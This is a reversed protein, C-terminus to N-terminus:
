LLTTIGLCDLVRQQYSDPQTVLDFHQGDVEVRNLQLSHLRALLLKLSGYDAEERMPALAQELHWQLYYALMCLFTHARVREERWHFVPRLELQMTKMSRFAREVQRLSHYSQQVQAAALATAPVATRLVYLGDLAAEEAIATLNRQYTFSGEAITHELHKAMKWRNIVAGVALAIAAPQRLRGREVRVRIKELQLETAQLLEERKRRRQEAVLPNRCVVLREKPYEPDYIEALGRQDFLSLQLSGQEHLRRLSPARLATIWDYGIQQLEEIRTSTIMGRDGVVVVRQFGFQQRLKEVQHQVTGTDAQNGAFVQVAVPCGQANTLLGYVFQQKGRKGDRSYGHAALPCHRGELYVSTLDYLVLAGEDLHRAALTQEIQPQLQLLQDMAEYLENVPVSEPFGLVRHLTTTQWWAATFRKSGPHILRAIVMALVLQHWPRRQSGLLQPLKLRQLLQYLTAVAGHARSSTIRFVERANVLTQGKLSRRILDITPAPLASLNALTRHKVKGDERYTERLLTATYVRDKYPRRVTEVFM